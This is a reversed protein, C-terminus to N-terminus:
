PSCASALQRSLSATRGALIQYNDDYASPYGIPVDLQRPASLFVECQAASMADCVALYWADLERRAEETARTAVLKDTLQRGTRSLGTLADCRASPTRASTKDLCAVYTQYARERGEPPIQSLFWARIAHQLELGAKGSRAQRNIEAQLSGSVSAEQDAGCAIMRDRLTPDIVGTQPPRACAPVLLIVAFGGSLAKALLM